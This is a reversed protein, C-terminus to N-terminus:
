QLISAIAIKVPKELYRIGTLKLFDEKLDSIILNVTNERNSVAHEQLENSRKFYRHFWKNSLHYLYYKVQSNDIIQKPM